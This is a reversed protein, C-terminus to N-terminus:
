TGGGSIIQNQNYPDWDIAKIAACHNNNVSYVRHNKLSWIQVRNDNSGSAL